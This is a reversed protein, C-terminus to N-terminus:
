IRKSFHLGISHSPLLTSWKENIVIMQLFSNREMPSGEVGNSEMPSWQVEGNSFKELLQVNGMHFHRGKSICEAGDAGDCGSKITSKEVLFAQDAKQM